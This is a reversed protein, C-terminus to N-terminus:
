VRCNYYNFNFNNYRPRSFFILQEILPSAANQFGIAIWTAIELPFYIEYKLRLNMASTQWM